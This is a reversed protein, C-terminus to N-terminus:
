RRLNYFFETSNGVRDKAEVRFNLNGPPTADDPVYILLNNKADYEAIVWQGNVFLSYSSIGSMNDRLVFNFTKFSRLRKIKKPTLQTKITPALSDVRLHFSGFSRVRFKVSDDKLEPSYYSNNNELTLQQKYKIWKTPIKFSLAFSNRLNIVSPHIFFTANQELKNDIWPAASYYFTGAPIELRIGSLSFRYERACSLMGAPLKKAIFGSVNRTRIYITAASSNGSEDTLELRLQHFMTDTLM